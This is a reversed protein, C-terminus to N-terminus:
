LPYRLPLGTMGVDAIAISWGGLSAVALRDLREGVFAVNTPQNLVVGDLDEALVEVRGDPAIVYLRDPRYCGVVIAGDSSLAIGDPQSGALSVVLSPRGARGDDDIPVGVIERGHSEVVLLTGGDASLCCGNPFRPTEESWVTTRGEPTIRYLLGDDAGWEGSDTVYLNGAEDFAAYNPVRMPREDTGASWTSVEAAASIRMVAANGFDCAYVNGGGDLTVGYIFGGTTALQEVTGDVAIRYIQGAEGGAYVTGDPGLAVGEPHDLDSALTEFAELM